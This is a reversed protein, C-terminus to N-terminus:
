FFCYGILINTLNIAFFFLKSTTIHEYTYFFVNHMNMCTYFFNQLQLFIKHMHLFTKHGCVYAINVNCLQNESKRSIGQISSYNSRM